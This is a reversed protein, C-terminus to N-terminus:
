DLYVKVIIKECSQISSIIVKAECTMGIADKYKNGGFPHTVRIAHQSLGNERSCWQSLPNFYYKKSFM